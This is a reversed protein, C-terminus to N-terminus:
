RAAKSKTANARAALKEEIVRVIRPASRGDGFPNAIEKVSRIWTEVSYNEELFRRLVAPDSGVLKSVGARIAEPRETNERLVLLPKGLTPAEEQVGGSDSIILWSAKMLALFDAYDLPELLHIRERNGLIAKAVRRVNPNPHVPFLLSVNEHKQVFEGIVKLNTAM